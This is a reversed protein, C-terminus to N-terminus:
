STSLNEVLTVVDGPQEFLQADLRPRRRVQALAVRAGADARAVLLVTELAERRQDLPQRDQV